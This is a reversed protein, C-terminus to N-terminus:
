RMQQAKGLGAQMRVALTAHDGEPTVMLAVCGLPALAEILEGAGELRSRDRKALLPVGGLERLVPGIRKDAAAADLTISVGSGPTELLLQELMAPDSALWSTTGDPADGRTLSRVLLHLDDELAAVEEARGRLAFRPLTTGDSALVIARDVWSPVQQLRLLVGDCGVAPLPSSPAGRAVLELGGEAVALDFVGASLGLRPTALSLQALADTPGVLGGSSGPEVVVGAETWTWWGDQWAVVAGSPLAGGRLAPNDALRGALQALLRVTPYPRLAIFGPVAVLESAPPLFPGVRELPRCPKGRDFRCWASALTDLDVARSLM